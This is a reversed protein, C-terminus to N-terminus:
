RSQAIPTFPVSTQRAPIIFQLRQTNVCTLDLDHRPQQLFAIMLDRACGDGATSAHSHVPLEVVTSASLTMAALQAWSPPTIPDFEGSLLLVPRDSSVAENELPSPPLQRFAACIDFLAENVLSSDAYPRLDPFRQWMRRMDSPRAFTIEENCQVAFNMGISIRDQQAIIAGIIRAYAGLEGRHADDILRPLYPLSQRDYLLQFFLNIFVGGDVKTGAFIEGTTPHRADIVAPQRNLQYITEYFTARLAPYQQDCDSDAACTAFLLELSRDINAIVDLYLHRDPPYVSDLVASRVIEPFDRLITLGLRTGYSIGWLNIQDYGLAQRLTNVDAASAASTYGALDVQASLTQACAILADTRLAALAAASLEIEQIQWDLTDVFVRQYDPCELAPQSYGTGRQDFIILDRGTALMIPQYRTAVVQAFSGLPSGGPGGDLYIIPDPHDPAPHRLISVALQIMRSTPDGYNESVSLMGCEVDLVDSVRFPCPTVTYPQEVQAQLAVCLLFFCILLFFRTVLV